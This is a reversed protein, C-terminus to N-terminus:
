LSAVFRRQRRRQRLRGLRHRQDAAAYRMEIGLRMVATRDLIEIFSASASSIQWAAIQVTSTDRRGPRRAAMITPTTM